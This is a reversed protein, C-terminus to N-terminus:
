AVASHEEDARRLATVMVAEGGADHSEHRRSLADDKGSRAEHVEHTEQARQRVAEDAELADRAEAEARAAKRATAEVETQACARRHRAIERM